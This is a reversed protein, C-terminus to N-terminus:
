LSWGRPQLFSRLKSQPPRTLIYPVRYLLLLVMYEHLKGHSTCLEAADKVTDILIWGCLVRCNWYTKCYNNYNVNMWMKVYEIPFTGDKSNYATSMIKLAHRSSFYLFIAWYYTFHTFVCAHMQQHWWVYHQISVDSVYMRYISLFYGTAKCYIYVHLM